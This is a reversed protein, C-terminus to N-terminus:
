YAQHFRRRLWYGLINFTLTMAFLVLGAAFISQYGVTGHPTEGQSTAVIYATITQAQETPDFTFRPQMGAAVAVIMTEGIARSVGLIYAAGIGSLASPVVVRWATLLKNAGLAYSGERLLMPVARMADESLSSVYPIIMIGMVIGASLMNARPLDPILWQLIPSVFTLAFYGYVVTPVASLLELSPKITERLAFPAFESLYLAVITGLPLAVTLAILTTMITASVLPLIGYRPPNFLPAWQKGTFFQWLNIQDSRFFSSSEYVLVLVIAATILVSSIAAAALVLFATWERADRLARSLGAPKRRQRLREFRHTIPGTSL